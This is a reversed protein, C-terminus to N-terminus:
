TWRSSLGVMLTEHKDLKM